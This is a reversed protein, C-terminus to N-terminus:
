QYQLCTQLVNRDTVLPNVVYLMSHKLLKFFSLGTSIFNKTRLRENRGLSTRSRKMRVNSLLPTATYYTIGIAIKLDIFLINRKTLIHTIHRIYWGFIACYMMYQRPPVMYPLAGPSTSSESREVSGKRSASKKRKPGHRSVHADKTHM